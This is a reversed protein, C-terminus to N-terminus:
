KTSIDIVSYFYKTKNNVNIKQKKFWIIYKKEKQLASKPLVIKFHKIEKPNERNQINGTLIYNNGKEHTKLNIIYDNKVTIKVNNYINEEASSVMFNMTTNDILPYYFNDTRVNEINNKKFTNYKKLQDKTIDEMKIEKDSFFQIVQIKINNKTQKINNMKNLTKINKQMNAIFRKEMMNFFKEFEQQIRKIQEFEQNFNMKDFDNAYLLNSLLFPILLFGLKRKM